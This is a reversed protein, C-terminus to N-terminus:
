LKNLIGIAVYGVIRVNDNSKYQKLVENKINLESVDNSKVDVMTDQNKGNVILRVHYIMIMM